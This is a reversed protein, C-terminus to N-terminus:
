EGTFRISKDYVLFLSGEAMKLEEIRFFHNKQLEENKDAVGPKNAKKFYYIL